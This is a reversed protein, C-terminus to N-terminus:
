SGGDVGLFDEVQLVHGAGLSRRVVRGVFQDRHAAPIGWGAKRALLHHPELTVGAPIPLATILKKGFTQRMEALALSLRDKEVPAQRVRELFRVGRVLEKLQRPVLSAPTDPGFMQRAFTIHVELAVAGIAVAALGPFIEGSHDSLGIRPGYRAAFLPLMNLGVAEPPTPYISTCQLVVPDVGRARCTEVLADIESLSSMGTSVLVPIGDDCMERVMQESLAEGSAVKWAAVGVERLLELAERSFPSSLFFIGREVAHDRLEKWQARSFEMRRWYDFRSADQTSFRVRWPESPTSEAAAIHTQFKVADVGADAALDIFSHALGLSGDHAQGVEAIVVCRIVDIPLPGEVARDFEERTPAM